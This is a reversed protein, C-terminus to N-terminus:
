QPEPSCICEVGFQNWRQADLENRQRKTSPSYTKLMLALTAALPSCRRQSLAERPTSQSLPMARRALNVMMVKGGFQNGVSAPCPALLPHRRPLRFADGMPWRRPRSSCRRQSSAARAVRRHHGVPQGRSAALQSHRRAPIPESFVSALNGREFRGVILADIDNLRSASM